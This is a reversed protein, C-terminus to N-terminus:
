PAWSMRKSNLCIDFGKTTNSGMGAVGNDGSSYIVSTGMMGLQLIQSGFFSNIVFM